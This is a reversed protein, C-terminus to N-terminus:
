LWIHPWIHYSPHTPSISGPAEHSPCLVLVPPPRPLASSPPLPQASANQWSGGCHSHSLLVERTLTGRGSWSCVPQLIDVSRQSDKHGRTRGSHKSHKRKSGLDARQAWILDARWLWRCRLKKEGSVKGWSLAWPSLNPMGLPWCHLSPFTRPCQNALELSRGITEHM